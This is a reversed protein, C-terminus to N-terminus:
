KSFYTIWVVEILFHHKIEFKILIIKFVDLIANKITKVYNFFM